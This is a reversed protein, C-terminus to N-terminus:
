EMVLKWIKKEIKVFKDTMKVELNRPRPLDVSIIERVKGPRRSLVVVRDSLYVAENIQHTVFIVTTKKKQWIKLLEKQMLDRTQADLASFPEDMLLIKPTTALARALNVRQKMGGSLQHPYFKEFGSLGVLKILNGVGNKQKKQIELGYFINKFVNRWPMLSSEQFVISINQYINKTKNINFDIDGGDTPPDSELLGAISYLLTTKGCGSPGVVSIFEKDFVSFSINSLAKLKKKNTKYTFSFNKIDLVAQKM